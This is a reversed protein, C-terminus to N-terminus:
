GAPSLKKFAASVVHRFRHFGKSGENTMWNMQLTRRPGSFPHHGHWSNDSRKFVLLTGDDPKIEELYDDVDHKNRLLRLRGGPYPWDENLYILVTIIKDLSDTHIKGDKNRTMGRLSYMKPREALDVDFKEEIVSQFEEGDLEHILARIPSTEDLMDIPFSGGAKLDPFSMNIASISEPKVFGPVVVYSFPDSVISTARLKDINLHQM